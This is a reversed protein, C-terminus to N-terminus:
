RRGGVLTLKVPQEVTRASEVCADLDVERFRLRRGIYHRRPRDTPQRELWKRFARVNPFGLHEAARETNLWPVTRGKM